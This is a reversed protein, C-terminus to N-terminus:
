SDWSVAFSLRYRDYDYRLDTSNEQTYRLGTTFTMRDSYAKLWRISANVGDYQKSIDKVFNDFAFANPYDREWYAVSMKLKNKDWRYHTRLKLMNKTYNDYSQYADDRQAYVYDVYTLWSRNFRHRLTASLKNYTYKRKPNATLLKGLANRSPRDSYDYSSYEYGLTGKTRKSFPYKVDGGVRFYDHDYQSIVVEDVYDRKQLEAGLKYKIKGIRKKFLVEAGTMAYTYRGSVDENAFVQEDGSDRDLYLRRKKGFKIGAYLSDSLKGATNLIHQAGIRMLHHYQNANSYKSDTYFRGRFKYEVKFDTGKQLPKQYAGDLNTDVFAGSQVKPSVLPHAAGDDRIQCNGGVPTCSKAYDIYDGSPARYINSDYGLGPAVTWSFESALSLSGAGLLVVATALRNYAM